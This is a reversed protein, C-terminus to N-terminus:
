SWGHSFLYKWLWYFYKPKEIIDLLSGFLSTKLNLKQKDMQNTNLQNSCASWGYVWLGYFMSRWTSVWKLTNIMVTELSGLHWGVPGGSMLIWCTNICVDQERKVDAKCAVMRELCKFLNFYIPKLWAMAVPNGSFRWIEGSDSKCNESFLSVCYWWPFPCLWWRNHLWQPNRIDEIKINCARQPSWLWVVHAPYIIKSPWM